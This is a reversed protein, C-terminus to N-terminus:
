IRRTSPPRGRPGREPRPSCRSRRAGPPRSATRRERGAARLRPRAAAGRPLAAVVAELQDPPVARVSHIAAGVVVDDAGAHRAALDASGSRGRTPTETASGGSSARRGSRGFGAALYCTDLLAIRVGAERAAAVLAEGMANPDDYPVGDPGHHLYHFEGVRRIGALRMEAYTAVALDFLLDPDLVRPSRTCGTAGRGSRTPAPSRPRAAGPPLRPQPLERLGASASVGAGAVTRVLADVGAACDADDAHEEPSHSVGTPNRVFLMATPVLASLVGADHGAGTPLLPADLAHALRDRLDRRLRGGPEVSEATSRSRPATSAAAAERATSSRDRRAATRAVDDDGARADLWARVRSPIANTGGPEVELRGFTARAGEETALRRAALVTAAYAQMPDRRDAM